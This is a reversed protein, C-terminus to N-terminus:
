QKILLPGLIALLVIMMVVVICCMWKRGQHQAKRTQILNDEAKATYGKTKHVNVEIADLLEGQSEVLVAMEQFMQALDAISRELSLIDQHKERIRQVEDLLLAHTGAMKKAVVLAPTEGAEIMEQREEETAEPMLIQMERQQRRELGRKFDIQAKQFDMLLQQHKKAMAQQMNSRIKNEASNPKKSAEEDSRAKLAELGHKIGAVHENTDQVLNQLRDSVEQERDQTTAQLADELVSGMLKVNGRGKELTNQIDKVSSFFERMFSNAGPGGAAGSAFPNGAGTAADGVLAAASGITTGKANASAGAFGHKQVLYQFEAFRDKVLREAVSVGM